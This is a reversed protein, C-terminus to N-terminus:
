VLNKRTLAVAVDRGIKAAGGARGLYVEYLRQAIAVDPCVKTAGSVLHERAEGPRRRSQARREVDPAGVVRHDRGWTGEIDSTKDVLGAFRHGVVDVLGPGSVPLPTATPCRMISGFPAHPLVWAGVPTAFM